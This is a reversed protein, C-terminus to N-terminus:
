EVVPDVASAFEDVSGATSLKARAMKPHENISVGRSPFRFL